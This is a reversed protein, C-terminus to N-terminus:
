ENWLKVREKVLKTFEENLKEVGAKELEKMFDDWIADFQEPEALIAETIRRKMIDQCKRFIVNAESGTKMNINWAAGWPRVPFEKESPWLDNYSKIHYAALTEKEAQTYGKEIQEPFVTTYYNGTPDKVGDGYSPGFRYMDIGTTKRFNGNDNVKKNLIDEPIVRKGNEVKYHKGEIGWNLLVQGEDSALFDLFKIVRVPDKASKTISIGIGALYGYRQFDHRKYTENLTVPFNAYTQDFKGEKRLVAVEGAFDWDMDILGLVRGSAIKARYQDYKQVFSEPDLLGIDHMHNLWRFYEKEEPRLYHLKAEYTDPDIYFEGEDPAGTTAVAPNTVSILFQWEGGNLSLPIIPQGDATTKHKGYYAKLANEFDRVTKIQPYNQEKLVAHQLSFGSGAKFYTQNVPATPLVYIGHDDNSWRLRKMYEGYVKKINPAHEEILPTLDILAGADKLEGVSGKAWVMDPYESSAVMLEFMDRDNGNMPFQAKLSIGTKETILKGVESQMDDWLPNFDGFAITITQPTLDKNPSADPGGSSGSDSRNSCGNSVLLAGIMVLGAVKTKSVKM